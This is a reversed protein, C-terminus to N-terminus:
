DDRTDAGMFFLIVLVCLAAWIWFVLSWNLAGVM